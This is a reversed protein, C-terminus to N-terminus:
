RGYRKSFELYGEMDQNNKLVELNRDSILLFSLKGAPLWPVVETSAVPETKRIYDMAEAANAFGSM